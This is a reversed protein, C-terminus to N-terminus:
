RTLVAIDPKTNSLARYALYKVVASALGGSAQLVRQFRFRQVPLAFIGVWGGTDGFGLVYLLRFRLLRCDPVSSM